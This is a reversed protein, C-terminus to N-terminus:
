RQKVLGASTGGCGAHSGPEGCSDEHDCWGCDKVLDPCQRIAQRRREAFRKLYLHQGGELYEVRNAGWGSSVREKVPISYGVWTTGRQAKMGDLAASLGHDVTQTKLQAHLIDPQQQAILTTAVSLAISAAFFRVLTRM